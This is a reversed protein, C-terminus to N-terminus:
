NCYPGTVAKKQINEKVNLSKKSKMENRGVYFLFKFIFFYDSLMQYISSYKLLTFCPNVRLTKLIAVIQNM